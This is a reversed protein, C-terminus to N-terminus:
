WRYAIGIGAFAEGDSDITGVVGATLAKVRVVDYTIGMRVVQEIRGNRTKVGLALRAEGRTDLAFWPYPDLRTYSSSEGTETNIVTTVTQPRESRDVKTAAIVQKEPAKVVDAPLKLRAKTDGGYVKVPVKVPVRKVPARKVEAAPTAPVSVEIVSKDVSALIAVVLFWGLAAAAGTLGFGLFLKTYWKM